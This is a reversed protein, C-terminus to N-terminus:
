VSPISLTVPVTRGSLNGRLLFSRFWSLLCTFVAVAHPQAAFITPYSFPSSQPLDLGGLPPLRWKKYLEWHVLRESSTACSFLGAPIPRQLEPSGLRLSPVALIFAKAHSLLSVQPGPVCRILLMTPPSTLSPPPIWVGWRWPLRAPLISKIRLTIPFQQLIRLPFCHSRIKM